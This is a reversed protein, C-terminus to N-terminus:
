FFPNTSQPAQAAMFPNTASSQQAQFQKQAQQNGWNQQQQQAMFPNGVITAPAQATQGATQMFPNSPAVNQTNGTYGQMTQQGQFAMQQQPQQVGGFGTSAAYNTGGYMQTNPQQSTAYMASSQPVGGYGTQGYNTQQMGGFGATNQQMNGFGSTPASSFVTAQQQPQQFNSFAAQQPQNSAPVASPPSMGFVSGLQSTQGSTIQAGYNSSSWGFDSSGGAAPVANDMSFLDALDAYKDATNTQQPQTSASTSMVNMFNGFGSPAQATSTNSQQGSTFDGFADFGASAKQPAASFANGFDAFGSNSSNQSPAGFADTSNFDGLINDVKAKPKAQQPPSKKEVQIQTHNQGLLSTLPKIENAKKLDNVFSNLPKQAEEPPIYWKKQEYKQEMFYKLKGHDSRSEPKAKSREDYKGLFINKCYENGRTEIFAIETTSFTAMSVSKVRHPPNLGRLIGGCSTCVFSGITVDVYTPGRQDCEFCKKNCDIQQIKKLTQLHKEEQKRKSAM